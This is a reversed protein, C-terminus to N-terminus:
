KFQCALPNEGYRGHMVMKFELSHRLALDCDTEPNYGNEEGQDTNSRQFQLSTVPIM